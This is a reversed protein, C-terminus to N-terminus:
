RARVSEPLLWLAAFAQGWASTRAALVLGVVLVAALVFSAVTLASAGYQRVGWRTGAAFGVIAFVASMFFFVGAAGYGANILMAFPIGLMFGFPAVGVGVAFGVSVARVAALATDRRLLAVLMGGLVVLGGLVVDSHVARFLASWEHPQRVGTVYVLPVDVHRTRFLGAGTALGDAGVCFCEESGGAFLVESVKLPPPCKVESACCPTEM